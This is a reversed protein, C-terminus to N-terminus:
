YRIFVLKMLMLLYQFKLINYILFLLMSSCIWTLSNMIHFTTHRKVSIVVTSGLRNFMTYSSRVSM